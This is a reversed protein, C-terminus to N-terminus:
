RPELGMRQFAWPARHDVVAPGEPGRPFLRETLEAPVSVTSSPNPVVIEVWHPRGRSKMAAEGPDPFRTLLGALM